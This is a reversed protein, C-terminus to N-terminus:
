ESESPVNPVLPAVKEFLTQQCERCTYAVFGIYTHSLPNFSGDADEGLLAFNSISWDTAGCVACPLNRKTFREAAQDYRESM